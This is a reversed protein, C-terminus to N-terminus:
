KMHKKIFTGLEDINDLYVIKDTFIALDNKLRESKIENLNTILITNIKPFNNKMIAFLSIIRNWFSFPFHRDPPIFRSEIIIEPLKSNPIVFDITRNKIMAEKEFKINQSILYDEIKRKKETVFDQMSTARSKFLQPETRKDSKDQLEKESYRTLDWDFKFLSVGYMITAIMLFSFLVNSYGKWDINFLTDIQQDQCYIALLCCCFVVMWGLFLYIRSQILWGLKHYNTKSRNWISFLNDMIVEIEETIDKVKSFEESAETFGDNFEKVLGTRYTDVRKEYGSRMVKELFTPIGIALTISVTALVEYFAM